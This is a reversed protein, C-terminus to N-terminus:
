KRRRRRTAVLALASLGAFLGFASPEPIALGSLSVVGNMFTVMTNEDILAGTFYDQAAFTTENIQYEASEGYWLSKVGTFLIVMCDETLQGDLKLELNINPNFGLSNNNLQIHAGDLVLTAGQGLVISAGDAELKGGVSSNLVKTGDTTVHQVEDTDSLEASLTAGSEFRMGKFIAKGSELNLSSGAAFHLIASTQLTGGQLNIDAKIDQSYSDEITASAESGSVTINGSFGNINHLKVQSNVVQVTGNTGTLAGSSSQTNVFLLAGEVASVSAKYASGANGTIELTSGADVRVNGTISHGAQNLVVYAGNGVGLTTGAVTSLVSDGLADAHHLNLTGEKLQTTGTHANASALTLTGAGTKVLNTEGALCGGDEAATFVYEGASNSVTVTGAELEGYMLVTGVAKDTFNVNRGDVYIRGAQWNETETDWIGNGTANTWELIDLYYYLSGNEWVLDDISVGLAGGKGSVALKELWANDSLDEILYYRGELAARSLNLTLELKADGVLELKGKYSLAADDGTHAEADLSIELTANDAKLDGEIGSNGEVAITAGKRASIGQSSVVGGDKLFLTTDEKLVLDLCSFIAEDEVRLRGNHLTTTSTETPSPRAIVEFTQSRNVANEMAEEGLTIPASLSANLTGVMEVLDNETHAGSFVIDGTQSVTEGAANIYDENLSLNGRVTISDYFTINKEGAASLSASQSVYLGRLRVGEDDLELNKEFVVNGNNRIQVYDGYIAAGASTYDSLTNPNIAMNGRFTVTDRNDSIELKDSACIAGGYVSGINNRFAANGSFIIAKENGSLSLTSGVSHWVYIAGGAAYAINDSFAITGKTNTITLNKAYPDHFEDRVACLNIAGGSGNVSKNSAFSLSENGDMTVSGYSVQIAGGGNNATNGSFTVNKNNSITLDGSFPRTSATDGPNRFIAIAGGLGAQPSGSNADGDEPPTYTAANSTFSINGNDNITVNGCDAYIAGGNGNQTANSDFSINGNNTLTVIPSIEVNGENSSVVSGSTAYIAGGSGDKTTHSKFSISGNANMTLGGSLKLSGDDRRLFEGCASIARIDHDKTSEFIISGNENMAITQGALVGKADVSVTGNNLSHITGNKEMTVSGSRVDIVYGGSAENKKINVTSVNTINLGADEKLTIAGGTLAQFTLTALTNFTLDGVDEFAKTKGSHFALSQLANGTATTFFFNGGSIFPKEAESWTYSYTKNNDEILCVAYKEYAGNIRYSELGIGISLDIPDNDSIYATPM